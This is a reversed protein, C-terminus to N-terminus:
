NMIENMWENMWNNIWGGYCKGNYYKANLIGKRLCDDIDMGKNMWGDSILENIQVNMWVNIWADMKWENMNINTNLM